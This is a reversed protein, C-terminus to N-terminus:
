AHLLVSCCYDVLSLQEWLRWISDSRTSTCAGTSDAIAAAPAAVEFATVATTLRGAAADMGAGLHQLLRSEQLQERVAVWPHVGPSARMANVVKLLWVNLATCALSWLMVTAHPEQLAKIAVAALKRTVQM